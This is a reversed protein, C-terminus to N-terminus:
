PHHQSLEATNVFGLSLLISERDNSGGNYTCVGNMNVDESQYTLDQGTAVFGLQALIAERDNSGGNYSVKGNGNADGGWLTRVGNVTTTPANTLIMPNNYMAITAFDITTTGVSLAVTANSIVKLHNRHTISVYYNGDPVSNFNLDKGNVGKVSGDNMLFGVSTGVVTTALAPSAGSRLELKVWDVANEPVSSATLGAGYPDALPIISHLATTMVTGSSPMAGQIRLNSLAINKDSKNAISFQGVTGLSLGTSFAVTGTGSVDTVMDADDISTAWTMGFDNVGRQYLSLGGPAAVMGSNTGQINSFRLEVLNDFTANTGYNRIVFYSLPVCPLINPYALQDSPVNLRTVVLDGNPFTGTAPFSMTVGPKIFDKVGGNVVNIRQFTGGGVPVSSINRTAGGSLSAHKGGAKDFIPSGVAENMQYYAILSPDYSPLSGARPNNRTLNMLERIENTSLARDYICIEDMDGIFHDNTKGRDSGLYLNTAFDIADTGHSGNVAAIGNLYMTASGPTIVMAVHSWVDVPVTLGSNYSWSYSKNGWVYGVGGNRIVLGTATGSETTILGPNGTQMGNPKIWCSMTITNTNVGLALVTRADDTNAALTLMKGPITDIACGSSVGAVEIFGTLTQSDTGYADTVTLSVNYMGDAASSYSVLPNEATSTAPTGGPFSWSWTASANRVTSYDRFQVKEVNICDVKQKSASIQAKPPSTEYLNHEWAGRSTGIRLKGLNYNIFIWRIDMLPLGNGLLAWEGMANNRYYVGDKNATYVGGNSGRQHVIRTTPQSSLIAGTLNTPWSTGGDTSKLIKAATQVGSYVIWVENPDVDSVAIDSINVQFESESTSPTVDTWSTGGDTTKWLKNNSLGVVVYIVNPNTMCIKERFLQDTFTKVVSLTTGQDDSRVLSNQWTALNPNGSPFGGAHHTLMTNYLNPHFSVNNFYTLGGIDILSNESIIEHPATRFLRRQTYGRTHIYRDDLPNVDTNQQDAGFGNFWDYGNHSEKIMVPGHNCGVAILDSKFAAGFGWLEHNSIPNSIGTCTAGGDTSWALEGDSGIAALNNIMDISRIDAHTKDIGDNIFTAGNDISYHISKQSYGSYAIRNENTRDMVIDGHHLENPFPGGVMNIRTSVIAGSTKELKYLHVSYHSNQSTGSGIAVYFETTNDSPLFLKAWGVVLGNAPPALTITQINSFTLGADGSRYVTVKDDHSTSLFYVVNNDTTSWDLMESIVGSDFVVHGPIGSMISTWTIGGDATRYIKDGWRAVVVNPDSPSVSIDYGKGGLLAKTLGTNNYTLGGDISKIVRSDTIAYVTNPSSVAVDIDLYFEDPMNADTLTWDIGGNATMWLGGTVFSAFIKSTNTPDIRTLYVYGGKNYVSGYPAGFSNVPGLMDWSGVSMTSGMMVSNTATHRSQDFAPEDQVIGNADLYAIKTKLWSEGIQRPKSKEWKHRGFYKEYQGKVKFYDANPKTMSRFWDTDKHAAEYAPDKLMQQPEEQEIMSGYSVSEPRLGDVNLFTAAAIAVGVCM